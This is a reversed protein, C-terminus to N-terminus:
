PELKMRVGFGTIVLADSRPCHLSGGTVQHSAPPAAALMIILAVASDLATRPTVKFATPVFKRSWGLKRAAESASSGAM